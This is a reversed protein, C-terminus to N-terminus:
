LRRLGCLGFGGAARVFSENAEGDSFGHSATVCVSLRVGSFGLLVHTKQVRLTVCPKGAYSRRLTAQVHSALWM